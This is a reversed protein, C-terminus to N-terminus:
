VQDAEYNARHKFQVARHKNIYKSCAAVKKKQDESGFIRSSCKLRTM